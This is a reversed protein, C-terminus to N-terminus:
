NTHFQAYKDKKIKTRGVATGVIYMSDCASHMCTLCVGEDYYQEKMKMRTQLAFHTTFILLM